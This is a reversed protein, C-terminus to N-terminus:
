PYPYRIIVVGSGGAGGGQPSGWGGGGGGSGTNVNGARAAVLNNGGAGGIGSGGLVATGTFVGGAGGGGFYGGASWPAAFAFQSFQQALGGASGSVGPQGDGGKGGGGGAGSQSGTGGGSGQGLVFRDIGSFVFPQNDQGNGGAGSAVIGVWVNPSSNGWTIYQTINHDYLGSSGGLAEIQVNSYYGSASNLWFTSNGAPLQAVFGGAYAGASTGAGISVTYNTFPLLTVNSYYVVGGAGGGGGVVNAGATAVGGAGKGGAGVVLIEINANVSGFLPVTSVALTNASTFVHYRYGGTIFTNGGWAEIASSSNVITVPKSIISANATAAYPRVTLQFYKGVGGSSSKPSLTIYAVNGSMVFSGSNGTNFDDSTVIGTTNWYLTQGHVNHAALIFTATSGANINASPAALYEFFENVYPYKLIVVGRGGRGAGSQSNGGGGGRGDIGAGSIHTGGYTAAMESATAGSTIGGAHNDFTAPWQSNGPITNALNWYPLGQNAIGSHFTTDAGTPSSFGWNAGAGGAYAQLTGSINSYFPRGGQGGGLRNRPQGASGGGGGGGQIPGPNGYNGVTSGYNVISPQVGTGGSWTNWGSGGGSGGPQGGGGEGGGGGYALLGYGGWTNAGPFGGGTITSNGGRRRDATNIINDAGVGVEFLYSGGPFVHNRRELVGGGAGCGQSGWNRDYGTGTGGGGVLLFDVNSNRHNTIAINAVNANLTLINFGDKATLVYSSAGQDSYDLVSLQLPAGSIIVNSSTFLVPGTVNSSRVQVQLTARDTPFLVNPKASVLLSAVQLSRTDQSRFVGTNAEGQINAANLTGSTSWYVSVNPSDLMTLYVTASAPTNATEVSIYDATAFGLINSARTFTIPLTTAVINGTASDTRLQVGLTRTDNEAILNASLTLSLAQPGGTYSSVLTGTNGGIINAGPFTGWSSWYFTATPANQVNFTFVVNDVGPSYSSYSATNSLYIPAFSTDTIEVNSTTYIVTGTPSGARLQVQFKEGVESFTSLDASPRIEFSGLDNNLIFSGTNAVFDSTTVNATVPTVSYYIESGDLANNTVVTFRVLDNENVSSVNATLSALSSYDAINLKPSTLIVPGSYGGSRLKITFYKTGELSFVRTPLQLVVNGTADVLATGVLSNSIFTNATIVSTAM